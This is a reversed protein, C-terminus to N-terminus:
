GNLEERIEEVIKDDADFEALRQNLHVTWDDLAQAPTNGCGFVGAQPDPGLIVCYANGDLYMAPRLQKVVSPLEPNEYDINLVELGDMSMRDM